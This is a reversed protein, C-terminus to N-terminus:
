IAHGMFVNYISIHAPKIILRYLFLWDFFDKPTSSGRLCASWEFGNLRLSNIEWPKVVPAAVM